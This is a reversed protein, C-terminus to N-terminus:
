QIYEWNHKIGPILLTGRLTFHCDFTTNSISVGQSLALSSGTEVENGDRQIGWQAVRRREAQLLSKIAHVMQVEETRGCDVVIVVVVIKRHVCFWLHCCKDVYVVASTGRRRWTLIFRACFSLNLRLVFVYSM